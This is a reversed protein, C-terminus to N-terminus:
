NNKNKGKAKGNNSKGSKAKGNNSKPTGQSQNTTSEEADDKHNAHILDSLEITEDGMKFSLTVLNDGEDCIEQLEERSFKLTVHGDQVKVTAPEITEGNVSLSFDSPEDASQIWLKVTIWKGNSKLNLTSPSVKITLSKSPKVCEIWDGSTLEISDKKIIVQFDPDMYPISFTAKGDMEEGIEIYGAVYNSYYDKFLLVEYTGAEIFDDIKIELTSEGDDVVLRAIGYATDEYYLEARYCGSEPDWPQALIPVTFLAILMVVSAIQAKKLM